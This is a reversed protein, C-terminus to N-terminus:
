HKQDAAPRSGKGMKSHDMNNSPKPIGLLIEKAVLEGSPLKTGIVSVNDGKKLHTKDVAEEGHEFRTKETFSVNVTGMPTKMEFRDSLVSLVEGTTAKGKHKSADHAQLSSVLSLGALLTKMMLRRNM